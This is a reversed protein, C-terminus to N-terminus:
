IRGEPRRAFTPGLAMLMEVVAVGKCPHPRV